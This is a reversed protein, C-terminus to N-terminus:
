RPMPFCRVSNGMYGEYDEEDCDVDEFAELDLMHEIDFSLDEAVLGGRLDFLSKIRYTEELVDDIHHYSEEDDEDDEDDYGYRHYGYYGGRSSPAYEVNGMEEKEILALFIDLDLEEAAGQLTQVQAMDRTKLNDLCVNAQTYHHDLTHLLYGPGDDPWRRLAQRLARTESRKLAASPRQAHQDIAMNYTLVWRYGSHVPLVEHTVDSYWCAYSQAAESTKNVMKKGCRKLVVNGGEHASPLCTVLTGFMGPIKETSNLTV